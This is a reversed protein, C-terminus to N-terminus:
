GVLLAALLGIGILAEITRIPLSRRREMIAVGTGGLRCRGASPLDKTHPRSAPSVHAFIGRRGRIMTASRAFDLRTARGNTQAKKPLPDSESRGGLVVPRAPGTTLSRVTRWLEIM